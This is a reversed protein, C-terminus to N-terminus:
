SVCHRDERTTVLLLYDVCRSKYTAASLGEVGSYLLKTLNLMQFLKPKRVSLLREQGGIVLHREGYQLYM